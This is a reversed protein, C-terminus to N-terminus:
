AQASCVRLQNGRPRAWPVTRRFRSRAAYVPPRSTEPLLAHEGWLQIRVVLEIHRRDQDDTRSRRAKGGRHTERTRVDRNPEDVPRALRRGIRARDADLRAREFEEFLVADDLWKELAAMARPDGIEIRVALPERSEVEIRELRAVGIQEEEVLGFGFPEEGLMQLREIHPDFAPDLQAIERLARRAHLRRQAMGVPAIFHQPRGVHDGGVARVAHHPMPEVDAKGALGEFLREQEGVQLGIGVPGVVLEVDERRAGPQGRQERHAIRARPQDRVQVRRGFGVVARREIVAARDDLLADMM